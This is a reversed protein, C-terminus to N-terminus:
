STCAAVDLPGDPMGEIRVSTKGGVLSVSICVTQEAINQPCLDMYTLDSDINVFITLPYALAERMAQLNGFAQCAAEEKANRKLEIAVFNGQRRDNLGGREFPIHVIIDPRIRIGHSPITKQYEQQVIPDGPFGGKDFRRALEQLLEGQYGREDQFLRAEDIAGVSDILAHLFAYQEVSIVEMDQGGSDEFISEISSKNWNM